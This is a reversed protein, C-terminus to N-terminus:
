GASKSHRVLEIFAQVVQPDFHKGSEGQIYELVKEVPWAQRYPRDSVLADWVDVIAFIRAALPIEEGHLGRPYGSGDWKEHHCYPIDLAPVLYSVKALTARAYEPHKRMVEWEADSLPGSKHLISDPIFMKGFDHLLVGRRLHVLQSGAIGMKEAMQLTMGVVRNSHGMTESDRIELATAWGRITEDYALIVDRITKNLTNAVFSAGGALTVLSFIALTDYDMPMPWLYFEVTYLAVSLGAFLYSAWPQIVFSALATPIGLVLLANSFSPGSYSLPVLLFPFGTLLWSALRWHGLRKLQLLAVMVALVVGDMILNEIEWSFSPPAFWEIINVLSLAALTITVVKLTAELIKQRYEWVAFQAYDADLPDNQEPKFTM